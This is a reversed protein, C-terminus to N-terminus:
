NNLPRNFIFSDMYVVTTMMVKNYLLVIVMITSNCPINKAKTSNKEHRRMVREVANQLLM